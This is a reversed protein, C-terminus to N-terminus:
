STLWRAFVVYIPIGVLVNFPFTVGLSATIALGHDAEPLNLRMAAPVAIYSASAALVALLAVGGTSFALIYHALLAGILGALCPMFMSFSIIFLGRSFVTKCYNGAVLGMELLFLSLVGAFLTKFLPLINNISDNSLFGILLSGTLLVISQNLFLESSITTSTKSVTKGALFLGVIIAPVELLVVFLAFYPEYDLEQTELFAVAVAFTGVSVSGYHAAINAADTRNIAGFYRIIFFAIIPIIFGLSTVWLSEILLNISAHEKLALGGKLGIAILLILMLSQSLGKPFSFEVKLLRIIIGLLFFYIVVDFSM